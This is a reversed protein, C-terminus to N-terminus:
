ERTGILRTAVLLVFLGIVIGVFGEPVPGFHAIGLGGRNAPSRLYQVYNAIASVQQDNLQGPGFIPMPAPGVRIAEATQTVTAKALTPVANGKSLMGGSGSADHCQSCNLSFLQLGQALTTCKGPGHGGLGGGTGGAGEFGYDGAQTSAVNGAGGHTDCTPSVNPISPGTNTPQGNIEPLANVYAVLERIQPASFFPAKRVAQDAPNNLPMRGTSLYFDAAAAGANILEPGKESGVGKNAHCASCHAIFLAEGKAIDSPSTSVASEEASGSGAGFAMVSFAVAALAFVLAPGAARSRHAGLVVRGLGRLPRVCAANRAVWRPLSRLMTPDSRVQPPLDDRLPSDVGRRRLALLLFPIRCTSRHSARQVEEVRRSLGDRGHRRTGRDRAPAHFGTLVYFCSTYANQSIPFDRGIYDAVQMGVFLAGLGFTMALWGLFGKRDDRLTRHVAMQMTFSSLVLIITAVGVSVADLTDGKPPWVSSTAARLTFYTAFLGSFFM